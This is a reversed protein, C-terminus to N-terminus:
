GYVNAIGKFKAESYFDRIENNLANVSDHFEKASGKGDIREPFTVKSYIIQLAADRIEKKSVWDALPVLFSHRAMWNTNGDYVRISVKFYFCHWPVVCRVGEWDFRKPVNMERTTFSFSINDYETEFRTSM